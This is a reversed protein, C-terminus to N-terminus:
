RVESPDTSASTPGALDVGSIGTGVGVVLEGGLSSCAVLEQIIGVRRIPRREQRSDTM